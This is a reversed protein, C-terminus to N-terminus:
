YWRSRHLHRGVIWYKDGDPHPVVQVAATGPDIEALYAPRGSVVLWM